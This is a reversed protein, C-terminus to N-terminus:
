TASITGRRRGRNRYPGKNKQSVSRSAFRLNGPEYNGNNDIRDLVKSPDDHGELGLLYDIFKGVDDVWEACVKIGRGGYYKWHPHSQDTCRAIAHSARTRLNAYMKPPLDSNCVRSGPRIRKNACSHCGGTIRGAVMWSNRIWGIKGCACQCKSSPSIVELVTWKGYIDGVNILKVASNFKNAM